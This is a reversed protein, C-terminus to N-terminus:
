LSIPVASLPLASTKSDGEDYQTCKDPKLATNYGREHLPDYGPAQVALYTNFVGTGSAQDSPFYDWLVGGSDGPLPQPNWTNLDAPTTDNGMASAYKTVITGIADSAPPNTPDSCPRPDTAFTTGAGLVMALAIVLAIGIVSAKGRENVYKRIRIM